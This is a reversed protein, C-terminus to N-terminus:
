WRGGVMMLVVVIIIGGDSGVQVRITKTARCPPYPESCDTQQNTKEGNEDHKTDRRDRAPHPIPQRKKKKQDRRLVMM